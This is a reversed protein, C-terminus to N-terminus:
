VTEVPNSMYKFFSKNFGMVAEFQAQTVQYKGIYFDTLVVDHEPGDWYDGMRFKGGEVYVMEDSLKMQIEEM